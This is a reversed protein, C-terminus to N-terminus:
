PLTEVYARLADRFKEFPPEPFGWPPMMEKIATYAAKAPIGELPIVRDEEGEEGAGKIATDLFDAIALSTTDKSERLNKSIVEAVGIPVPSYVEDSDGVKFGVGVERQM